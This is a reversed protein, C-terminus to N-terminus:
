LAGRLLPAIADPIRRRLRAFRDVAPYHAYGCFIEDGGDASLAVTVHRRTLRSLLYTPVASNDGFPEDYIDPLRPILELAERPSCSLEHHETGLLGAVTRAAASEDYATEEFAVTFTKLSAGARHRLVAAVASSDIGGSLMVGVPVDSVLRYRFADALIAELEEIVAEDSREPIGGGTGNGGAGHPRAAAVRSRVDWWCTERPIGDKGVELWHGPLLKRVGEFITAPAPVYGFQLYAPLAALDLSRAFGPVRHFAKLESAFLFRGGVASWFLPKVGLRDRALFLRRRRRDWIAFAFMGICRDLCAPGWRAWAKLLVETDSRSRLRDGEAELDKAIEAFNYVEGNFVIWSNGDETGMPQHGAPSLDLISLRRHGLALCEADDAWVGADDPGRHALSEAMAEAIPLCGGPKGVFEWIGAIGCM